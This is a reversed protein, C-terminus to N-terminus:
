QGQAAATKSDEETHVPLTQLLLLCLLMLSGISGLGSM